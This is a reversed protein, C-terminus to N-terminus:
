AEQTVPLEQAKWQGFGGTMNTVDVAGAAQLISAAIAGRGGSQCQVIVPKGNLLSKAHDFLYGLMIHKAGPIHGGQWESESRVDVLMVRDNCIDDALAAPDATKFSQLARGQGALSKLMAPAAVGQVDDLGIYILDRLVDAQADESVILYYPRDYDILWGAWAELLPQPINLTGPLHADAFQAPARTDIVTTGSDAVEVLQEATLTAPQPLGDLVHPGEKNIRKMQAFYKPSEPQDALLDTVFPEEETYQLMPNFLKEYGVTSAPVSGIGKGCATGAGHAPWIQLYDPLQKFRELAHFMQRAGTQASGMQGAAKELLDPRGVSGVFVFDGTFIGMPQDATAGDTLLYSLHEPTHSPTHMAELTVNGLTVTDGDKLLQHKYQNAFQYKWNTDGEDSLYLTAGTEEALQRAGSVFDAHIHTEVAGVIRMGEEKAAKLYPEVDRGPDIILATNTVQCGVMYSAHALKRHYFRKFLM